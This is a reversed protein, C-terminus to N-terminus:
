KKSPGCFSSHELLSLVLIQRKYVDLHTYSVPIRHISLYFLANMGALALGYSIISSWKIQKLNVQWIKFIVALILGGLLLRMASIALVPFQEFLTKALAGSSQVSIMAFFLLAIAQLHPANKLNLM